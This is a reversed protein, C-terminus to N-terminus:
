AAAEYIRMNTAQHDLQLQVMQHQDGHRNKLNFLGFRGMTDLQDGQLYISWMSDVHDLKSSAGGIDAYSDIEEETKGTPQTVGMGLAGIEEMCGRFRAYMQGEQVWYNLGKNMPISLLEFYDCIVVDPKRKLGLLVSCLKQMSISYPTYKILDIEGGLQALHARSQHLTAWGQQTQLHDLTMGTIIQDLRAMMVKQNMELTVYTVYAGAALFHYAFNLLLRSKGRGPPGCIVHLEGQAPGGKLHHNFMPFLTPMLVGRGTPNGDAYRDELTTSLYGGMDLASVSQQAVQGLRRAEVLDGKHIAELGQSFCKQTHTLEILKALEPVYVRQVEDPSLSWARNIYTCVDNAQQPHDRAIETFYTEPTPPKGVADYLRILTHSARRAHDSYFLEDTLMGRNQGLTDGYLLCAFLRLQHSEEQVTLEDAM